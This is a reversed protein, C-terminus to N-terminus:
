DFGSVNIPMVLNYDSVSTKYTRIVTLYDILHCKRMASFYVTCVASVSM